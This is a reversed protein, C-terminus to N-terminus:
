KQSGNQGGPRWFHDWPDGFSGGLGDLTVGLIAWPGGFGGWPLGFPDSLSGRPAKSPGFPNGLSGKTVGQPGFRGLLTGLPAKSPRIPGRSHRRPDSLTGLSAWFPGFPDGLSGELTRFPGWPFRRPDSLTGWPAKPPGFPGVLSLVFRVRFLGFNGGLDARRFARLPQIYYILYARRRAYSLPPYVGSIGRFRHLLYSSM